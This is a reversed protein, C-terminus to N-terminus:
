LGAFLVSLSTFVPSATTVILVGSVFDGPNITDGSFTIPSQFKTRILDGVDALSTGDSIGDFALLLAPGVGLASGLDFSFKDAPIKISLAASILGEIAGLKATLTGALAGVASLEAALSVQVPPLTVALSLQAQLQVIAALAQRLYDLPNGASITLTAQAALAANLQGSLDFKFPGLGSAIAADIQATLNPLFINAQQAGTNISGLTGGAVEDVSAM